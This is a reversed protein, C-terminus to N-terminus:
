ARKPPIAEKNEASNRAKEQGASGGSDEKEEIKKRYVERVLAQIVQGRAPDNLPWVLLQGDRFLVPASLEQEQLTRNASRAQALLFPIMIRLSLLFYFLLYLDSSRVVELFCGRYVVWPLLVETFFGIWFPAGQQQFYYPQDLAVHGSPSLMQDFFFFLWAGALRLCVRRPAYYRLFSLDDFLLGASCGGLFIAQYFGGLRYIVTCVERAKEEEQVKSLRIEQARVPAARLSFGGIM